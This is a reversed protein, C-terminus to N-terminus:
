SGTETLGESRSLQEISGVKRFDVFEVEDLRQFALRSNVERFLRRDRGHDDTDVFRGNDSLSELREDSGTTKREGFTGGRGSDSWVESVIATAWIRRAISDPVSCIFPTM